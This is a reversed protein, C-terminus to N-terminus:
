LLTKYTSVVLLDIFQHIVTTRSESLSYKKLRSWESKKFCMMIFNTGGGEDHPSRIAKLARTKHGRALCYQNIHSTIIM